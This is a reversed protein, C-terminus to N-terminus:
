SLIYNFQRVEEPTSDHPLVPTVNGVFALTFIGNLAESASQLVIIDIVQIAAIPDNSMLVTVLM